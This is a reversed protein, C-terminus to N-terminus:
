QSKTGQYVMTITKGVVGSAKKVEQAGPIEGLTDHVTCLLAKAEDATAARKSRKRARSLLSIQVRYGKELFNRLQKLRLELDNPAIAWNLEIEKEKISDQVALKRVEKQEAVEAKRDVIRCIPYRPRSDNEEGDGRPPPVAVVLLSKARIDIKRLIDATKQPESLRGTEDDRVHIFTSKIGYDRLHSTTSASAAASAPRRQIAFCRRFIPASPLLPPIHVRCTTTELSLASTVFIQRLAATSSFLCRAGRM